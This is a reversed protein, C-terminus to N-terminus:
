ESDRRLVVLTKDDMQPINGSFEEVNTLLINALNVSSQTKFQKITEVFRDKGYQNENENEAETIGDSYIVILDGPELKIKKESYEFDPTIGLIIDETNLEEPDTNGSFYVPNDHGANCYTLEHNKYDLIAYFLTAFKDDDSSNYLFRNAQTICDACGKSITSHTRLIGQLNAMLMAAPIGKGSIDGLFVALRDHPLTFFDFYDGGVEKAPISIGAIDYGPIAPQTKPLLNQQINRALTMEEKMKKLNREEQYLRANEIVQASQAACISLLRQDNETFGNESNKNFLVVLGIIRGKVFMPVCLLSDIPTNAYEPSAFHKDNKFDNILLPSKHKLVYGMLQNDLKFPMSDFLTNKKRIMTEFPRDSDPSNLLMVVGEVANLHKICKKIILTQIENLSQTSSIATAIENLISLESITLQLKRNKEQLEVFEQELKGM